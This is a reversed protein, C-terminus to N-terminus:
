QGISFNRAVLMNEPTPNLVSKRGGKQHIQLEERILQDPDNHQNQSPSPLAQQWTNYTSAVRVHLPNMGRRKINVHKLNVDNLLSVVQQVDQGEEFDWNKLPISVKQM